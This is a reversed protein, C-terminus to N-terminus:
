VGFWGYDQLSFRQIDRCLSWPGLGLSLLSFFSQFLAVKSIIDNHNQLQILILIKGYRVMVESSAGFLKFSGWNLGEFAIDVQPEMLGCIQFCHATNKQTRIM